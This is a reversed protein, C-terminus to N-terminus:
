QIKFYYPRTIFLRCFSDSSESSESLQASAKKERKSTHGDKRRCGTEMSVPGPEQAYVCLFYKCMAICWCNILDGIVLDNIFSSDELVTM